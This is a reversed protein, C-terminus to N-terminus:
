DKNKLAEKKITAIRRLKMRRRKASPKEYYERKRCEEIIKIKKCKKLFRKIAREPHEGRRPYVTIHSPRSGRVNVKPEERRKRRDDNGWHRQKKNSRKYAM